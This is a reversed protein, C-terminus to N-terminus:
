KHGVIRDLYLSLLDALKSILAPKADKRTLMLANTCITQIKPTPWSDSLKVTRTNYIRTGDPLAAVLDPDNLSMLVLGDNSMVARLMKHDLNIPDTVWGVADFAGVALQNLALTGGESVAEAGSLNPDLITLYSWTGSMGGGAAGVAIRAPRGEVTDGLAKLAKVPGAKRHAIYVCENALKGIVLLNGYRTPDAALRAAYVDAQSFAVDVKGDALFDLNQGSGSSTQHLSDYDRMLTALNKAYVTRYSGGSLGSAIWLKPKEAEAASALLVLGALLLASLTKMMSDIIGGGRGVRM